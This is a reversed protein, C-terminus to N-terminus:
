HQLVFPAFRTTRHTPSVTSMDELQFFFFLIITDEGSIFNSIAVLKKIWADICNFHFIHGCPTCFVEAGNSNFNECCVSCEASMKKEIRWCVISLLAVLILCSFFKIQARCCCFQVNIVSSQAITIVFAQPLLHTYRMVKLLFFSKDFDIWDIWHQGIRICLM